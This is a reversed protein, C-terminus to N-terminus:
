DTDDAGDSPAVTSVEDEEEAALELRTLTGDGLVTRITRRAKELVEARAEESAVEGGLLGVLKDPRCGPGLQLLSEVLPLVHAAADCSVGAARSACSVIFWAGIDEFHRQALCSNCVVQGQAFKSRGEAGMSTGQQGFHIRSECIDCDTLFDGAHWLDEQFKCYNDVDIVSSVQDAFKIRGSDSHDASIGQPRLSSKSPKLLRHLVASTNARDSEAADSELRPRSGASTNVELAEPVPRKGPRRPTAASPGPVEPTAVEAAALAGVAAIDELKEAVCVKCQVTKNSCFVSRIKSTAIKVKRDKSRVRGTEACGAPHDRKSNSSLFDGSVQMSAPVSSPPAVALLDEGAAGAKINKGIGESLQLGSARRSAAIVSALSRGQSKAASGEAKALVRSAVM